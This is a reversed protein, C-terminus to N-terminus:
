CLYDKLEILNSINMKFNRIQMIQTSVIVYPKTSTLDILLKLGSKQSLTQQSKLGKVSQLSAKIFETLLLDRSPLGKAEAILQSFEEAM